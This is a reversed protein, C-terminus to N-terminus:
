QSIASMVNQAASNAARNLDRQLMDIERETSAGEITSDNSAVVLGMCVFSETAHSYVLSMASLVGPQFQTENIMGPNTRQLELTVLDHASPLAAMAAQIEQTLREQSAVDGVGCVDSFLDVQAALGRLTQIADPEWTARLSPEVVRESEWPLGTVPCPAGATTPRNQEAETLRTQFTAQRADAMAIADTRASTMAQCVPNPSAKCAAFTLLPIFAAFLVQPCPAFRM